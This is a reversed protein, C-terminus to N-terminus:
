RVEKSLHDADGTLLYLLRVAIITAHDAVRGLAKGAMLSHVAIRAADPGRLRLLESLLRDELLDVTPPAESVSLALEASETAWARMAERYHAVASDALDLLIGFTETSSRMVELEPGLKVVRLTLDGIREFESLVRLVSVIFRLDGAVPGERVLLDYCRETLSVDMADIDDDAEVAKRALGEDGRHLVGLMRELNEDVRVAMVEVQLRLQDLESAFQQRLPEGQPNSPEAPDRDMAGVM